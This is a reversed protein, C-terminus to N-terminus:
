TLNYFPRFFYCYITFFSPNYISLCFYPLFYSWQYVEFIIKIVLWNIIKFSCNFKFHFPFKLKSDNKAKVKEKKIKIMMKNIKKKRRIKQNEKIKIMTKRKKKRRKSRRKSRIKRKVKNRRVIEKQNRLNLIMMTVKKNRRRQKLDRERKNARLYIMSREGSKCKKNM